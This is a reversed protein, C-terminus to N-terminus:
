AIIRTAPPLPVRPALNTGHQGLATGVDPDQGSVRAARCLAEAVVDLEHGAVDAVDRATSCATAPARVTMEAM